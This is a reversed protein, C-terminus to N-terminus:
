AAIAKRGAHIGDLVQISGGVEAQYADIDCLCTDLMDDKHGAYYDRYWRATRDIAEGFRWAPRWDLLAVAKDISLRLVNSEHADAPDSKDEWMGQGWAACFAEVLDQVRAVGDDVRPGFNWGSCLDPDHSVLMREALILYGSLPELVHQWPRISRPNRLPVPRHNALSRIIDPIIRDQAWDGGGIVNGARVTALKVGHARCAEPPFFSRRYSAALLEVTGKSASYPDSGGMRDNERYGWPQECNEYCKDSTIVVVVCPRARRRVCELVNCTGMFNTEFTERPSRHSERVLPQAALHFIVDPESRDIAQAMGDLDRIDGEYHGSLMRRVGSAEFNSPETPPPLSYGSVKAGLQHLWIALWSGKFGTHGTLLVSRGAIEKLLPMSM